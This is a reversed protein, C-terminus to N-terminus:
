FTFHDLGIDWRDALYISLVSMSKLSHKIFFIENIATPGINVLMCQRLIFVGSTQSNGKVIVM